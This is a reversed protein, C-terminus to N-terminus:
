QCLTISRPRKFPQDHSRLAKSAKQAGRALTGAERLSGEGLLNAKRRVVNRPEFGSFLAVRAEFGHSPQSGFQTKRQVLERGRAAVRPFRSKSWLIESRDRLGCASEGHGACANM